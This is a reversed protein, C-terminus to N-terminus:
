DQDHAHQQVHPRDVRQIFFLLQGPSGNRRGLCREMAPACAWASRSLYPCFTEWIYQPRGACSNQGAKPGLSVRANRAAFVQQMRAVQEWNVASFFGNCFNNKSFKTGLVSAPFRYGPKARPDEGGLQRRSLIQQKLTEPIEAGGITRMIQLLKVLPDGQKFRYTGQFEICSNAVLDFTKLGLMEMDDLPRVREDNKYEKRHILFAEMLSPSGKPVPRLQAFDGCDVHLLPDGFPAKQAGVEQVQGAARKGWYARSSLAAYLGPSAAGVEDNYVFVCPGWTKRLKEKIKRSPEEMTFKAQRLLGARSHMTEGQILRAASNQAAQRCCQGPMFQEYVPLVVRTLCFTKGSGGAGHGFVRVPSVGSDHILDLRGEPTEWETFRNERIAFDYVEQLPWVCLVIMEYQQQDWIAGSECALRRAMQVPSEPVNKSDFFTLCPLPVPVEGRLQADESDTEIDVNLITGKERAEKLAKQNRLMANRMAIQVALTEISGRQRERGFAASLVM